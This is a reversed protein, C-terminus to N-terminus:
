RRYIADAPRYHSAGLILMMPLDKDQHEVEVYAVFEGRLWIAVAMAGSWYLREHLPGTDADDYDFGPFETTLFDPPGWSEEVRRVTSGFHELLQRAVNEQAEYSSEFYFDRSVVLYLIHGAEFTTCKFGDLSGRRVDGGPPLSPMRLMEELLEVPCRAPLDVSDPGGPGDPPSSPTGLCEDILDDISEAPVDAPDPGGPKTM